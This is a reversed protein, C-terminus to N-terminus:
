IYFVHHLQSIYNLSVDNLIYKEHFIDTLNEYFYKKPEKIINFGKLNFLKLQPYIHVNFELKHFPNLVHM